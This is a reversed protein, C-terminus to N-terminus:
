SYVTYRVNSCEVSCVSNLISDPPILRGGHDSFRFDLLLNTISKTCVGCWDGGCQSNISVHSHCSFLKLFDESTENGAQATNM